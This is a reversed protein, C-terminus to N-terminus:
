QAVWEIQLKEVPLGRKQIRNELKEHDNSSEDILEAIRILYHHVQKPDFNHQMLIKDAEEDAEREIQRYFKRIRSKTFLKPPNMVMQMAQRHHNLMMHAHEHALVHALQDDNRINIFLGQTLIVVGHALSYANPFEAGIIQCQSFQKLVLTEILVDCSQQWQKNEVLGYQDLLKQQQKQAERMLEVDSDNAFAESSLLLFLLLANSFQIIQIKIIEM